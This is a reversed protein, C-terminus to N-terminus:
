PRVGRQHVYALRHGLFGTGVMVVVTLVSLTIGTPVVGTWGDRAHIFNNILALVLVVANGGLHLWGTGPRTVARNGLFDVLGFVAAPVGFLMGFVLLWQAFNAWQVQPSLSYVIDCLMAGTFCAIPFPVLMAHVPVGGITLRPRFPRPDM